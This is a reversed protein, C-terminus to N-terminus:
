PAFETQVDIVDDKGYNLAITVPLGDGAAGMLHPTDFTGMAVLVGGTTEIWWNHVQNVTPTVDTGDFLFLQTPIVISAGGQPDIFPGSLDAVVIPAYGSFDCEQAELMAKTTEPSEDVNAKTLSLVCDALATQQLTALALAGPKSYVSM